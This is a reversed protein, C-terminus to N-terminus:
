SKGSRLREILRAMDDPLPAEVRLREGTEPHDFCLALAHLAQRDILLEGPPRNGPLYLRDGVVPHGAHQMHVRIQHTRGTRPFLRLLTHGPLREEVCWVTVAERGAKRDVSRRDFRRPDRGIPENVEGEDFEVVGHVVAVYEKEVSRKKFQESLREGAQQGLALLLVGSTDRDLRHVVGSRETDGGPVYLTAYRGLLANVVTGTRLTRTPHVTMGAPKDIALVARDEHLVRLAIEEPRFEESTQEPLRGEVVDGAALRLGPRVTRGRLTVEGKEILKRLASRSLPLRAALFRDVREGAGDPGVELRFGSENGPPEM